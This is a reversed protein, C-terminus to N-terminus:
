GKGGRGVGVGGIGVSGRREKGRCAGGDGERVEEGM